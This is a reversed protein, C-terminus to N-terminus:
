KKYAETFGEIPYQLLVWEKIGGKLIKINTFGKDVLHIALSESLPCSKSFCYAIIPDSPNLFAIRTNLNDSYPYASFSGPIHLKDYDKKSRADMFLTNKENFSAFAEEVTVYAYGPGKKIIKRLDKKTLIQYKNASNDAFGLTTLIPTKFVVTVGILLIGIILTGPFLKYRTQNM